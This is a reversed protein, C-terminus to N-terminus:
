DHYDSVFFGSPPKPLTSVSHNSLPGIAGKLDTGYLNKMTYDRSETEVRLYSASCNVTYWMEVWYCLPYDVGLLEPDLSDYFPDTM